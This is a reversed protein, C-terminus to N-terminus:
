TRRRAALEPISVSSSDSGYFMFRRNLASIELLAHAGRVAIGFLTRPTRSKNSMRAVISRRTKSATALITMEGSLSCQTCAVEEGRKM